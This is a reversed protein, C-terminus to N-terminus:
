GDCRKVDGNLRFVSNGLDSVFRFIKIETVKMLNTKKKVNTLIETKYM